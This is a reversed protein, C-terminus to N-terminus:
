SVTITSLEQNDINRFVCIAEGSASDTEYHFTFRYSRDIRGEWIGEVGKVKKVGLSPHQPDSILLKFAKLAKAQIAPPLARFAKHFRQSRRYIM